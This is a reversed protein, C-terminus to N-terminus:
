VNCIGYSGNVLAIGTTGSLNCVTIDEPKFSTWLDGDTGNTVIGGIVPTGKIGTGNIFDLNILTSVPVPSGDIKATTSLM